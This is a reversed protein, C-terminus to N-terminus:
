HTRTSAATSDAYSGARGIATLQPYRASNKSLGSRDQPTVDNVSSLGIRCLIEYIGFVGAIQLKSINCGVAVHDIPESQLTGSRPLSARNHSLGRDLSARAFQALPLTLLNGGKMATHKWTDLANTEEDREPGPGDTESDTM